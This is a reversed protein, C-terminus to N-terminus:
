FGTNIKKAVRFQVPRFEFTKLLENGNCRYLEPSHSLANTVACLIFHKNNKAQEFENKTMIFGLESGTVGKVEVNEIVDGFTCILDFGCKESEVSEVYWKKSRYWNVVFSIAASEVEKNNEPTGFGAGTEIESKDHEITSKDASNVPELLERFIQQDHEDLNFKSILESLIKGWKYWEAFTGIYGAFQRACKDEITQYDKVRPFYRLAENIASRHDYGKSLFSLVAYIQRLREPARNHFPIEAFNTEVM